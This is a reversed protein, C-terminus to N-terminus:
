EDVADVRLITWQAVDIHRVTDRGLLNAVAEVRHSVTSTIIVPQGLTTSSSTECSMGDVAPVRRGHQDLVFEPRTDLETLKLQLRVM